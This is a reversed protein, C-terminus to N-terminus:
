QSSAVNELNPSQDAFLKGTPGVAKGKPENFGAPYLYFGREKGKDEEVAIRHDRAYADHRIGTVQWSVEMGPKGGAVKFHNDTMKQAVYLNPAPAGIATLQYRFNQNLASFYDPMPVVAEGKEDLTVTGDYINKMDPSEVFSHYLYKNAPDLPHDIKFSGSSKTLNGNIQVNGGFLGAITNGTTPAAYIGVSGRAIVGYSGAEGFVGVGNAMGHVGTGNTSRGFVGDSSGSDGWVGVGTSSNGYVGSGGSNGQGFVGLIGNGYVATGGPSSGEVGNGASSQGFVGVGGSGTANGYVGRGTSTSGFM